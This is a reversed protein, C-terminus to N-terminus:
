AVKANLYEAYARIVRELADYNTTTYTETAPLTKISLITDKATPVQLTFFPVGEVPKSIVIEADISLAETIVEHLNNAVCSATDPSIVKANDMDALIAQKVIALEGATLVPVLPQIMRDVVINPMASVENTNSSTKGCGCGEKKQAGFFSFLGAPKTPTNSVGTNDTVM